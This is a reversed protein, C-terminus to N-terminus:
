KSRGKFAEDVIPDGFDEASTDLRYLWHNQTAVDSNKQVTAGLNRAIEKINFDAEEPSEDYPFYSLRANLMGIAFAQNMTYADESTRVKQMMEAMNVPSKATKIVIVDGEVDAQLYVHEIAESRVFHVMARAPTVPSGEVRAKKAARLAKIATDKRLLSDDLHPMMSAVIEVSASIEDSSFDRVKHQKAAEWVADFALRQNLKSHEDSRIDNHDALAKHGVSAPETTSPLTPDAMEGEERELWELRVSLAKAIRKMNDPKPVSGRAILTSTYGDGKGLARDLTTVSAGRAAMAEELRETFTRM